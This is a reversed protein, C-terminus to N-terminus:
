AERVESALRKPAILLYSDTVLGRVEEWSPLLDAPDLLLQSVDRFSLAIMYLLPLVTIAAFFAISGWRLTGFVWREARARRV